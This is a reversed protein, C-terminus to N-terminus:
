LQCKTKRKGGKSDEKVKAMKIIIHKPTPRNQNLKNTARQAEQIKIDREELNPFNESM